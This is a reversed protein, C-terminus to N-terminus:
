TAAMEQARSASRQAQNISPTRLESCLACRWPRMTSRGLAKSVRAVVTAPMRPATVSAAASDIGVWKALPRTNGSRLKSM